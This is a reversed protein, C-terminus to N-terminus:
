GEEKKVKAKESLSELGDRIGKDVGKWLNNIQQDTANFMNMLQKRLNGPRVKHKGIFQLLSYSFANNIYLFKPTNKIRLLNYDYLKRIYLALMNNELSEFLCKERLFDTIIESDISDTMYSSFLEIEKRPRGKRKGLANQSDSFQNSIRGKQIDNLYVELEPNGNGSWAEIAEYVEFSHVSSLKKIIRDHNRVPLYKEPKRSKTGEIKSKVEKKEYYLKLVRRLRQYEPTDYKEESFFEIVMKYFNVFDFKAYTQQNMDKLAWLCQHIEEILRSM